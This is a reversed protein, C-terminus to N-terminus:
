TCSNLELIGNELFNNVFFLVQEDILHVIFAFKFLVYKLLIIAVIIFFQMLCLLTFRFKCYEYKSDNCLKIIVFVDIYRLGFYSTKFSLTIKVDEFSIM